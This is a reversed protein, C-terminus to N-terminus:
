SEEESSETEGVTPVEASEGAEEEVAELVPEKAITVAFLQSDPSSLLEVGEPLTVQAATISEHIGLGSIDVEIHDPLESVMGRVKIHQNPHMLVAEGDTVVQPMGIAVISLDVKITDDQSIQQITVHTLKRTLTDRDTSKVVVSLAKKAGDVAVDIMGTGSAGSLAKKLDVYDAQVLTTKGGKEVLAMPVVGAKRLAKPKVEPSREKVQLVSM